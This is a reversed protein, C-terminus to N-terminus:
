CERKREHEKERVGLSDIGERGELGRPGAGCNGAGYALVRGPRTRFGATVGTTILGMGPRIRSLKFPGVRFGLQSWVLGLALLGLVLEYGFLWLSELKVSQYLGLRPSLVVGDNLCLLGSKKLKESTLM